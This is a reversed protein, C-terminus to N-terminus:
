KAPDPSLPQPEHLEIVLVGTRWPLRTQVVQAALETIMFDACSIKEAGDGM